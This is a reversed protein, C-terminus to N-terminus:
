WNISDLDIDTIQMVKTHDPSNKATVAFWYKEWEKDVKDVKVCPKYSVDGSDKVETVILNKDIHIRLGTRLGKSIDIECSNKQHAASALNNKSKIVSRAGNGQLTM